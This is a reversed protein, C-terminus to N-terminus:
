TRQATAAGGKGFVFEKGQWECVAFIAFALSLPSLGAMAGIPDFHRTAIWWGLNGFFGVVIGVLPWLRFWYGAKRYLLFTALFMSLSISALTFVAGLEGAFLQHQTLQYSAPVDLGQLWDQLQISRAPHLVMQVAVPCAFWTGVLWVSRWSGVAFAEKVQRWYKGGDLGADTAM